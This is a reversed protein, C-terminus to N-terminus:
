GGRGRLSRLWRGVLLNRDIVMVEMTGVMTRWRDGPAIIEGRGGGGDRGAAVVRVIDLHVTTAITLVDSGTNLGVVDRRDDGIQEVVTFNPPEGVEIALSLWAHGVELVPTVERLDHPLTSSGDATGSLVARLLAKGAHAAVNRWVEGDAVVLAWAVVGVLVGGVDARREVAWSGM